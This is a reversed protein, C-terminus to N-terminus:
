PLISEAIRINQNASLLSNSLRVMDKNVKQFWTMKSPLIRKEYNGPTTKITLYINLSSQIQSAPASHIESKEYIGFKSLTFKNLSTWMSTRSSLSVTNRRPSLLSCVMLLLVMLVIVRPLRTAAVSSWLYERVRFSM